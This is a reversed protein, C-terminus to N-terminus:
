PAAGRYVQICQGNADLVATVDNAQSYHVTTGDPRATVHGSSIADEVVSPVLGHRQMGGLADSSYTRVGITAAPVPATTGLPADGRGVPAGAHLPTEPREASPIGEPHPRPPAPLPSTQPPLGSQPVGGVPSVPRYVGQAPSGHITPTRHVAPGHFEYGAPVPVVIPGNSVHHHILQRGITEPPWGMAQAYAPTVIRGGNLLANETPAHQAYAAWFRDSDRLWGESTSRPTNKGIWPAELMQDARIPIDMQQGLELARQALIPADAPRPPHFDPYIRQPTPPATGHPLGLEQNLHGFDAENV